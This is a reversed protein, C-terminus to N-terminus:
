LWWSLKEPWTASRLLKLTFYEVVYEEKSSIFFQLAVIVIDFFVSPCLSSYKWLEMKDCLRNRKDMIALRNSKVYLDIKIGVAELNHCSCVLAEALGLPVEDVRFILWCNVIEVDLTSGDELIVQNNKSSTLGSINFLLATTEEQSNTNFFIGITCDLAEFILVIIPFEIRAHVSLLKTLDKHVLVLNITRFRLFRQDESNSM